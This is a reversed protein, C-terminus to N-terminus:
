PSWYRACHVQTRFCPNDTWRNSYYPGATGGGQMRGESCSAGAWKSPLELTQRRTTNSRTLHRCRIHNRACSQDTAVARATSRASIMRDMVGGFGALQRANAGKEILLWGEDVVDVASATMRQVARDDASPLRPLAPSAAATYKGDKSFMTYGGAEPQPAKDATWGFLESYFAAGADVDPVTVDAWCPKGPEYSTIEPM